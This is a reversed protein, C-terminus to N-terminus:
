QVGEAIESGPQRVPQSETSIGTEAVCDAIAKLISHAKTWTENYESAPDSDAVIGGGVPVVWQGDVATVTRILINLDNDGTFGFYGLSGCYPGRSLTELEAIIEMARVKPAGTISGGPFVAKLLQSPKTGSLLQGKVASVLHLVSAYSELKVLQSVQVSDPSCIKSLDNRMLDVIMINEARDKESALLQQAVDIDVEPHRTRRRTGKIPRTEVSGNRVSVLREPSASIVQRDGLDFCAAFTSPNCQRMSQYLALPNAVAPHSLQQAINVQFIDGAHILGLAQEVVQLYMQRDFNSSWGPLEPCPFPHNRAALDFSSEARTSELAVESGTRSSTQLPSLFRQAREMALTERKAPETQPYGTSILWCRDAHHDWAVVVDYVGLSVPPRPLPEGPPNVNEIAANFEYEFLGAVGGQFPPLDDHPQLPFKELTQDLWAFTTSAQDPGPQFWDVPDAMVFSYRGLQPHRMSSELLLLHPLNSWCRAVQLPTLVRTFEPTLEQVFASGITPSPLKYNSQPHINVPM